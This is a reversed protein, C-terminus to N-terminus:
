LDECWFFRIFVVKFSHLIENLDTFDKLHYPQTLSNLKSSWPWHFLSTVNGVSGVPLPNYAYINQSFFGNQGNAVSTLQVVLPGDDQVTISTTGNKMGPGEETRLESYLEVNNQNLM